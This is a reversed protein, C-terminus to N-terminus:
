RIYKKIFVIEVAKPKEITTIKVQSSSIMANVHTM